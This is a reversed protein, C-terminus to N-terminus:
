EDEEVPEPRARMGSRVAEALEADSGGALALAARHAAAGELQGIAAAAERKLATLSFPHRWRKLALIERMTELAEPDRLGGLAKILDLTSSEGLRRGFRGRLRKLLLRVVDPHRVRSAVEIAVHRREEDESDLTQELLRFWAPDQLSILTKLIEILVKPHASALRPKLLPVAEPRGIRRMLFVANRVVFWRPDDLKPRLFPLARAGQRAVVELLRKRIALSEEDELARLVAPLAGDGLAVLIATLDAHRAKDLTRFARLAAEVGNENCVKRAEESRTAALIPALRVATEIDGADLAGTLEEALRVAAREAVDESPWIMIAEQLTRVLHLRIAEDSLSELLEKAWAAQTFDLASAREEDAPIPAAAANSPL